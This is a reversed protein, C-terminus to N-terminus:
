ALEWKPIWDPCLILNGCVTGRGCKGM